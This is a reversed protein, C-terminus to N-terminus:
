LYGLAKLRERIQAEAEPPLQEDHATAGKESSDGATARVVPRNKLYAPEFISSPLDGEMEQPVPLGLSYLITPAVDCISLSDAAAGPEIGPGMAIFVGDPHHTGYPAVRLKLSDDARLVSLFSLDHLALTLDPAQEMHPGPFAEERTLVRSVVPLGTDPDKLQLLSKRLSDRFALYQEPAVGPQGPGDARRIHIANSSSSLAFASTGTWDLLSSSETNDDLALRAQDDLPVAEHWRLYGNQELWTNAYFIKDGARTFGHDSALVIYADEGALDLIRAIHEDLERYYQLCLQHTTRAGASTYEGATALDILHYCLHQIRDVGDFLVATLPCPEERMLYMLIECWRRERVIHFRVWDELQNEALGQVAKREHQWDTSLERPNFGQCQKLRKYLGKPHVARPLYSWPVYGPIIIGDLKPAPFMLPFNLCIVRRGQRSAMSWITECQVDAATALTYSPTDANRDLRIFDFVGHNGPTRGTMLATWAPPTLPHITSRLPARAGRSILEGLTPMVGEAILPDLLIFTAGDLGILVTKGPATANTTM